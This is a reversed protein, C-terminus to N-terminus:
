QNPNYWLYFQPFEKLFSEADPNYAKLIRAFRETDRIIALMEIPIDAFFKSSKIWKGLTTGPNRICSDVLGERFEDLSNVWMSKNEGSTVPFSSMWSNPVIRVLSM